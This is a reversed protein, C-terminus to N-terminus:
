PLSNRDDMASLHELAIRNHPDLRLTLRFMALARQVRGSKLLLYGLNNAASTYCRQFNLEAESLRYKDYTLGKLDANKWFRYNVGLDITGEFASSTVKYILGRIGLFWGAPIIRSNARTLYLKRTDTLSWLASTLGLRVLQEIQAPDRPASGQVPYCLRGDDPFRALWDRPHNYLSAVHANLVDVRRKEIYQLYALPFYEDVACVLVANFPASDLVNKAWGYAVHAESRDLLKLQSLGHLLIILLLSALIIVRAASEAKGSTFWHIYSTFFSFGFCFLIVILAYLPLYFPDIMYAIGPERSYFALMSLTTSVAILLLYGFAKLPWINFLWVLGVLAIIPVIIAFQRPFVDKLRDLHIKFNDPKNVTIDKGSSAARKLMVQCFASYNQPDGRDLAPQRTSRLPLYIYVSTGLIFLMFMVLLRKITNGQRIAGLFLIGYAPLFLLTQHHNAMSLGLFFAFAYLYRTNAHKRAAHTLAYLCAFLLLIHLSYVEASIGASWFAESFALTIMGVAAIIPDRVEFRLLFYLMILALCNLFASFLCVKYAINGFPLMALIRSPIVFLPYTSPHPIGLSWSAIIFESGDILPINSNVTLLYIALCFLLPILLPLMEQPVLSSDLLPSDDLHRTKAMM